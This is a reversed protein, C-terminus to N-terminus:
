DITGFLAGFQGSFSPLSVSTIQSCGSFASEYISSVYNPVIIETITKDKVGYIECKTTSSTFLFNSMEQKIGNAFLEIDKDVTFSPMVFNKTSFVNDSYWGQWECGLYDNFTATIDPIIEGYKYLGYYTNNLNINHSSTINISFRELYYYIKLVSSGDGNINGSVTDNTLNYHEYTRDVIKVATTDTTGTLNETYDLSFNNDNLNELYYEVKYPTDANATWSATYIVNESAMKFTYSSANTLLKEGNYWGNFTYGANITATITIEEGVTIKTLNYNSITGAKNNNTETTLTFFTWSAAIETDNIIPKTFDYNWGTFTYGTKVTTPEIAFSDEEVQQNDVTTGGNTNFSVTYIPRRRVTMTYLNINECDGSTILLYVTNNGINLPITKTAITQMGYIDTSIVWSAGASVQIQNIFSYTETDNSVSIKGNNGDLTFGTASILLANKNPKEDEKWKAYVSMDSSLPSDLLSNATFPKEWVDKDWFWGEFTYDDKAPNEPMKITEGGSTSVAAYIEGDVIFNIKFDVAGCASFAFICFLIIIFLQAQLIKKM